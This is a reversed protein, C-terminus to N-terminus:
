ARCRRCTASPASGRNGRCPEVEVASVSSPPMPQSFMAIEGQIQQFKMLALGGIMAALFLLVLLIRLFM